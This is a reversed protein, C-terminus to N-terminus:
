RSHLQRQSSPTWSAPACCWRRREGSRGAASGRWPPHDASEHGAWRGSERGGVSPPRRWSRRTQGSCGRGRSSGGGSTGRCWTGTSSSPAASTRRGSPWEWRCPTYPVTEGFVTRWSVWRRWCRATPPPSKGTSKTYNLYILTFPTPLTKRM